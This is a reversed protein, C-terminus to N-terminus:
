NDIEQTTSSTVVEKLGENEEWEEIEDECIFALEGISMTTDEYKKVECYWGDEKEEWMSVSGGFFGSLAIFKINDTHIKTNFIITKPSFSSTLEGEKVVKLEGNIIAEIRYAKIDGLHERNRQQPMYVMGSITHKKPMKMSICYPYGGTVEVVTNPDGDIMSELSIDERGELTASIHLQKMIKEQFFCSLLVEKEVYVTPKFEKSEVYDFLCKKLAAVSPRNKIDTELDASVLLLKGNLVNCEIILGLPYNRNWEDIPRVIPQLHKPFKSLNIGKAGKLVEEWQWDQWKKTPFNKLAKHNVDCVLGMGRGWSPGMQANWFVPRASLPPCDYSFSSYQPSLIVNRGEELAKIAEKISRTYITHKLKPEAVDEFLWFNWNNEIDTGNIKVRIKYQKNTELKQLDIHIQGVKQNKGLLIDLVGVIGSHIVIVEGDEETIVEYSIKQKMLPEKGFHCVELPYSFTDKKTFVRKEIRLLLVTENCYHRFEEPEVFGKSEWFADLVGVLATGQGLYDHLDLLEFGYLHPTRFNAELEEKFMEMKLKGSCYAFTKNLPLLGNQKMSEKFVKFNGPQLFGKFKNIIDFDPYSCWQGLEHSIVPYKIGEVSPLYDKGHWGKFNRITGGPEIGFGSRHFYVYDTGAIESPPMKYPWGSQITYLHRRDKKKCNAVWNTLPELWDGGPENSPSLLVFSPHNGFYKLIRDTEEELVKNMPNGKSFVNWMPCEVQIYVGLEDAAVFASKPPCYSHCRVFNLGWNKVTLFINKWYEVDTSPYGTLPFDGGFHTGRFYTPRNNIFFLGDKTYAERFGFTTDWTSCPQKCSEESLFIRAKCIHQTFEDWFKTEKPYELQIEITQVKEKIITSITTALLQELCNSEEKDKGIVSNVEVVVKKMHDLEKKVTVLFTAVKTHIDTYVQVDAISIEGRKKLSIEGVIGNWTAALADSVGHGDPRYPLQWGNDVCVTIKHIGKELRKLDYEHPGCLSTISGMFQGDVWVSTKWRTAEMYLSYYGEEEIVVEKEYWALGTYHKPPQSLFPVNVQEEQAVKYEDREYWLKDYLSQVWPTNRDIDNGYGQAQLIGPLIITNPLHANFYKNKFGIGERDLLFKWQGSLDIKELNSGREKEM